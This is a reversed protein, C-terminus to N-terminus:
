ILNMYESNLLYFRNRAKEMDKNNGCWFVFPNIMYTDKELETIILNCILQKLARSLQSSKINLKELFSKRKSTNLTFIGTKSNSIEILIYMLRTAIMSNLDYFPKLNDYFHKIIKSKYQNQKSYKRFLDIIEDNYFFWENNYRFHNFKNHLGKELSRTGQISYLLEFNANHTQYDKLRKELDTTFGIKLFKNQQILYVIGNNSKTEM